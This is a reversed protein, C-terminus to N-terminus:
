FVSKNSWRIVCLLWEITSDSVEEQMRDIHRMLATDEIQRKNDAAQQVSMEQRWLRKQREEEAHEAALRKLEDGETVEDQKVRDIVRERDRIRQLIIVFFRTQM